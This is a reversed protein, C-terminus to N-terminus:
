QAYVIIGVVIIVLGLFTKKSIHEKLVFLSLLSVFLFGSMDLIPGWSLPIGKYAFIPFVSSIGILIYAGLVRKNFYQSWFSTYDVGSARKLIIQSCSAIFTGTLFVFIYIM